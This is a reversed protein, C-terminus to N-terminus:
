IDVGKDEGTEMIDKAEKTSIVEREKVMDIKPFNLFGLAAQRLFLGKNMWIDYQNVEAIKREQTDAFEKYGTDMVDMLRVFTTQDLNPIAESAAVFMADSSAKRGQTYNTIIEKFSDTYKENVKAIGQVTKWTKSTINEMSSNYGKITTEYTVATSKTSGLFGVGLLVLGITSIFMFTAIGILITVGTVKKNKM